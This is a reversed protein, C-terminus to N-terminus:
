PRFGRLIEGAMRAMPRLVMADGVETDTYRLKVGSSPIRARRRGGVQALRHLRGARERRAELVADGWDFPRDLWERDRTAMFGHYFGNLFPAVRWGIQEGMEMDCPRNTKSLINQRWRRMWDAARAPNLGAPATVAKTRGKASPSM